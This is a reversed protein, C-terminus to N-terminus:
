GAFYYVICYQVFRIALLLVVPSLDIGNIPKLYKRIKSLVPEIIQALFTMVRAVLPQYKNIIEFHSLLNIIIYVLIAFCYIDLVLNLLALVPNLM